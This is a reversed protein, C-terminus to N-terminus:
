ARQYGLDIENNIMDRTVRIFVSGRPSYRWQESLNWSESQRIEDTAYQDIMERITMPQGDVTPGFLEIGSRIQSLHPLKGVM